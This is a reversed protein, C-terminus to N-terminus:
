SPIPTVLLTHDKTHQMELSYVPQMAKLYRAQPGPFVFSKQILFVSLSIIRWLNNSLLALNM